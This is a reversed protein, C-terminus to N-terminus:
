LFQLSVSPREVSLFHNGSRFVVLPAGVRLRGYGAPVPAVSEQVIIIPRKLCHSTLDLLIHDFVTSNFNGDRAIADRVAAWSGFAGNSAVSVSALLEKAHKKNSKVFKDVHQAVRQRLQTHTTTTTAALQSVQHVLAHFFCNGDGPVDHVDVAVFREVRAVTMTMVGPMNPSAIATSELLVHRQGDRLPLKGHTTLTTVVDKEVVTNDGLLSNVRM